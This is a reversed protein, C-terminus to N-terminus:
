LEIRNIPTQPIGLGSLFFSDINDWNKREFEEWSTQSCVGIHPLITVMPNKRLEENVSPEFEHVDLGVGRVLGVEIAGLLAQEDILQGRAINVVRLGPKSISFENAGLMHHTKETLPCSLCMCDAVKLLSALSDHWIAGGLVQAEADPKQRPGHYHVKMGLAATAKRAIALGISGLGVIGLVQGAPDVAIRGLTRSSAWASTRVCHEAFTFYRYTNIILFLATNAVPTTCTDPTNCYWIRRATLAPIDARCIM